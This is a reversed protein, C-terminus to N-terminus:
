TRMANHHGRPAFAKCKRSRCDRVEGLHL